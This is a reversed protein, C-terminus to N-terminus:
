RLEEVIQKHCAVCLDREGALHMYDPYPADHMGHCTLCTIPRGNRPDRTAEGMPHSVTHQHEHCEACLELDASTLLLPRNGGHPDHCTTCDLGDGHSAYRGEQGSASGGPDHCSLCLTALPRKLLGAGDATHPNHCAMCGEGGAAVHPFPADRAAAVQEEHCEGCLRGATVTTRFPDEAGPARHCDSCDGGAFPLHLNERFLGARAAAHPDHCQQCDAKEVPYSQHASRFAPNVPHCSVCVQVGPAASLGPFDAGHPEHCSACRGQAFPAHRVPRAEWVTLEAHCSRCLEPGEARLLQRRASGHPEHCAVCRGEAVPQHVVARALAEELDQHCASCLPGPRENLLHQFRAVHPNHCASCEGSRAPPHPVKATIEAALEEHCTLCVEGQDIEPGQGAAATAGLISALLIALAFCKGMGLGLPPLPLAQSLEDPHCHHGSIGGATVVPVGQGQKGPGPCVLAFRSVGAFRPVSVSRSNSRTVAPTTQGQWGSHVPAPMWRSFVSM